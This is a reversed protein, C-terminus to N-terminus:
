LPIDLLHSELQRRITHVPAEAKLVRSKISARESGKRGRLSSLDEGSRLFECLTELKIYIRMTERGYSM